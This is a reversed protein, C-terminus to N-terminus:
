HDPELGGAEAVISAPGEHIEEQINQQQKTDHLDM